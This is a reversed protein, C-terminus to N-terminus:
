KIIVRIYQAINICKNRFTEHENEDNGNYKIKNGKKASFNFLIHKFNFFRIINFSM